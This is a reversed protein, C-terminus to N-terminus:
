DQRSRLSSCVSVVYSCFFSDLFFTQHSKIRSGKCATKPNMTGTRGLTLYIDITKLNNQQWVCNRQAGFRGDIPLSYINIFIICESSQKQTRRSNNFCTRALTLHIQRNGITKTGFLTGNPKLDVMLQYYIYSLSPEVNQLRNKLANNFCTRALTVYETCPQSGSQEWVRKAM